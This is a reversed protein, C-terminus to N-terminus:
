ADASATGSNKIEVAPATGTTAPLSASKSEADNLFQKLNHYAMKYHTECVYYREDDTGRMWGFQVDVWGYRPGDCCDCKENTILQKYKKQSGFRPYRAMNEKRRPM